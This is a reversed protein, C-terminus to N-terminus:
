RYQNNEQNAKFTFQCCSDGDLMCSHQKVETQLVRLMLEKDFSCIESHKHGVSIYPCSFETLHYEGNQKEWTAMFGEQALMEILYDLREEFPREEYEAKHEALMRQGVSTFLEEIVGAPLRSKLEDLLRSSLRAYRQPFLEYGKASLSYVIHPRGVKRRVSQTVLLGEAMLVNLHHRVTVPSIDAATALDGVSAQRQSKITQVIVDRTSQKHIGNSNDTVFKVIFNKQRRQVGIFYTAANYGDEGRNDIQV